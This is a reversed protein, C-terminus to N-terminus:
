IKANENLFNNQQREKNTASNSISIRLTYVIASFKYQVKLGTRQTYKEYVSLTFLYQYLKHMPKSKKKLQRNNNLCVEQLKREFQQNRPM